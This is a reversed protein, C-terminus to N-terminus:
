EGKLRYYLSDATSFEDNFTYIDDLKWTTDEYVFIFSRLSKIGPYQNEITDESGWEYLVDIVVRNAKPNKSNHYDYHRSGVISYTTPLNWVGVFSRNSPYDPNETPSGSRKTHNVFRKRLSQSLWRTQAQEDTVISLREGKNVYDFFEKFVSLCETPAQKLAHSNNEVEQMRPVEACSNTLLIFVFLCIIKLKMIVFTQILWSFGFPQISAPPECMKSLLVATAAERGITPHFVPKEEAM